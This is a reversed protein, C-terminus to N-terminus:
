ERLHAERMIVRQIEQPKAVKEFVLRADESSVQIIVNGFGYLSAQLGNVEAKVDQLKALSTERDEHSFLGLQTVLIIRKNTIAYYTRKWVFFKWVLMSLGVLLFAGAAWLLITQGVNILGRSLPSFDLFYAGSIMLFPVFFAVLVPDRFVYWHQRAIFVPVEGPELEIRKPLQVPQNGQFADGGTQKDARFSNKDEGMDSLNVSLNALSM